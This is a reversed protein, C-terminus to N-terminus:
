RGLLGKPYLVAAACAVLEPTMSIPGVYLAMIVVIALTVNVLEQGRFAALGYLNLTRLPFQRAWAILLADTLAWGGVRHMYAGGLVATVVCTAAAAALVVHRVFRFLRRDGWAGALEGGFKYISLCTIVLGIPGPEVLPWTVLRWVEGHWIKAPALAAWTTVFGNDLAAIISVVLTLGIWRSVFKSGM